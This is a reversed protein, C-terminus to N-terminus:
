RRPEDFLQSRLDACIGDYGPFLSGATIGMLRLERLVSDKERCPLDFAQLYRAQRSTECDLIYGEIDDINTITSLAQQPLSRENDIPITDLMSFHPFPTDVRGMQTFDDSWQRHNFMYIRVKEAKSQDDSVKANSFAFYAAVFPSHTWDLLPTPYGHHQILNWFAGNQLPDKLDFFHKTRASFLQHLRPIDENSFRSLNKRATRHFSTRLRFPKSQGRFVSARPELRTAFAKFKEWSNVGRVPKIASKTDSKSRPLVGTGNTGISTTWDLKLFNKKLSFKVAIREPIQVELDRRLLEGRPIINFNVRDVVHLNLDLEQIDATDPTRILTLYSLSNPNNENIYAIGDFFSGRDDLNIMIRGSNTGKFDGIWQGYM